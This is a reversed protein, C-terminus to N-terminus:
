SIIGFANYINQYPKEDTISRVYPVGKSLIEDVPVITLVEMSGGDSIMTFVEKSSLGFQILKRRLAQKWHFECCAINVNDGSFEELISKLLAVEFECTITKPM